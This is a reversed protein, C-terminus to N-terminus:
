RPEPATSLSPPTRTGPLFPLAAGLEACTLLVRSALALALAIKPGVLGQLLLVVLSERVLLGGPAFVAILGAIYSLTFVATALAWPITVGDLLGRALWVFSLGTAGWVLGNVALAGALVGPALTPLPPVRAPLLRQIVARAPPISLTFSGAVALAGVVWITARLGPALGGLVDPALFASVAVGSALALGQLLVAAAVAAGAAVGERQALLAAGAIAWVKGPIYKGLNSVTCVRAAQVWRLRFGLAQVVRRWVEIQLAYSAFMVGLAAALWAPRVSWAIRQAQLDSWNHWLSRGALVVLGAGLLWQLWRWWRQATLRGERHRGRPPGAM